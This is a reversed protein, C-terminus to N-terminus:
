EFIVRLKGKAPRRLNSGFLSYRIGLKRGKLEQGVCIRLPTEFVQVPADTSIDGLTNSVHVSDDKLNVTAYESHEAPGRDVWRDDRPLKPLRKAVYFSNHNPMVLSLSANQISEEGQNYVVLQLNTAKTEFLFHDDENKHKERIEAMETILEQADRDEYPSDSGFLRAHTLRAMVTTSGSNTYKERIDLLQRLKAGAIASPMHSLDVVPVHLDKHIIEGPFGIEINEASVSHHFKLEFLEQLQRRGMKVPANGVRIYADGRRLKESYDARMMYPRDRCESIEYVGVRKGDINVPLYRVRVPPEIFDNVLSQYSPKGSFDSRDISKLLKQDNKNFAVGTVIYRNGDVDANAMALVDRLFRRIGDSGYADECFQVDTGPTASRAIKLLRNM